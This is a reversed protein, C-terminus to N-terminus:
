RYSKPTHGNYHNSHRHHYGSGSSSSGQRSRERERWDHIQQITDNRLWQPYYNSTRQQPPPPPANHSSRSHSGERPSPMSHHGGSSGVSDRRSSNHALVQRADTVPSDSFSLFNQPSNQLLPPPRTTTPSPTFSPPKSSGATMYSVKMPSGFLCIQNLLEIAYNVSVEHQFEVFAHGRHIDRRERDVSPVNVGALPGAQMSHYGCSQASDM